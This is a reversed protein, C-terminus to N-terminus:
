HEWDDMFRTDECMALAQLTRMMPHESTSKESSKCITEVFTRASNPHHGGGIHMYENAVNKPINKLVLKNDTNLCFVQSYRGEDRVNPIM